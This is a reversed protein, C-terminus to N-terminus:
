TAGTLEPPLPRSHVVVLRSVARTLAVYLRNLGRPGAAIDAPEVLVVHDFELGKVVTAPVVTVQPEAEEIDATLMLHPVDRERLLTSVTEAIDDTCIIGISGPVAILDVAADVAASVVDDDTHQIRVADPEGARISRAPPLDPALGPLLRNALEIVPAPARYGLTLHEVRAAPKGLPTLVDAWESAAWPTTGQALDGLITLSGTTARRGIARSQMPSLDQAEDVVVHGFGRPREILGTAEDVLVADALTWPARKLSRPPRKWLLLAQEDPDLIDDAAAALAESDTFLKAIVEVATVTPWLADVMEKVAPERGVRAAERDTFTGGDAERQRRIDAAILAILRDRAAAYRVDGRRLDDVYRRLREPPVRYRRSGVKIMVDSDPRRVGAYVAREIVQAMRVDAKIRAADLEDTARVEIDGVLEDVTLQTVDIEGLAPLVAAVYGLFARNPGIILVGARHLRESHAYLLYAARHLGVATKGTGPGGQICVNDDLEARVIEDQDPQITAVIDRMPGVRPREIEELLIRSDTTDVDLPEDEYSTLEGHHFGFRRRLTTGMADAATARYFATAVPARWDIVLPERTPDRIHRRGVHLEGFDGDIRGFFPPVRPDIALSALRKARLMGLEFKGLEVFESVAIASEDIAQTETRM